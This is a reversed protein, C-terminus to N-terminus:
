PRCAVCARPDLSQSRRPWDRAAAHPREPDASVAVFSLERPKWRTATRTRRDGNAGDQWQEVEFGVSVGRIIGQAIDNVIGAVEPRDSFRVEALLQGAEIWARAISGIVSEVGDQRHGNLVHAGAFADLDVADDAIRLVEDYEQGRADVRRVPTGTAVVATITRAESNWTSPRAAADRRELATAERVILRPHHNM